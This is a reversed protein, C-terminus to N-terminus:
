EVFEMILTFALAASHLYSTGTPVVYGSGAAPTFATILPNSADFPIEPFVDDVNMADLAAVTTADVVRNCFFTNANIMPQMATSNLVSGGQETVATSSLADSRVPYQALLGRCSSGTNRPDSAWARPGEAELAALDATYTSVGPRAFNISPFTVPTGIAAEIAVFFHIGQTITFDCAIGAAVEGGVVQSQMITSDTSLGTDFVWGLEQNASYDTYGISSWKIPGLWRGSGIENGSYTVVFSRVVSGTASSAVQHRVTATMTADDVATVRGAQIYNENYSPTAIETTMIDGVQVDADAWDSAQSFVIDYLFSGITKNLTVFSGSKSKMPGKIERGETLPAPVSSFIAMKAAYGDDSTNTTSRASGGFFPTIIGKVRAQKYPCYFASVIVNRSSGFAGSGAGAAPRAATYGYYGDAFTPTSFASRLMPLPPLWGKNFVHPSYLSVGPAPGTKTSSTITSREASLGPHALPDDNHAKIMAEILDRIEAMIAVGINFTFDAVNPIDIIVDGTMGNVSTVQGKVTVSKIGASELLSLYRIFYQTPSGDANIIKETRNLPETM